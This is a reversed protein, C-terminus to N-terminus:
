SRTGPIPAVGGSVFVLFLTVASVLFLWPAWRAFDDPFLTGTGAGMAFTAVAFVAKRTWSWERPRTGSLFVLMFFGVPFLSRAVLAPVPVFAGAGVGIFSLAFGAAAFRVKYTM